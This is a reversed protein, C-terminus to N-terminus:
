ALAGAPTDAQILRLKAVTERGCGAVSDLLERGAAPVAM